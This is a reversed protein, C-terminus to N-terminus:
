FALGLATFVKRKGKMEGSSEKELIGHWLGYKSEGRENADKFAIISFKSYVM